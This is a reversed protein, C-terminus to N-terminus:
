GDDRWPLDELELPHPNGPLKDAIRKMNGNIVAASIRTEERLASVEKTLPEHKADCEPRTIADAIGKRVFWAAGVALLGVTVVDGIGVTGDFSVGQGM